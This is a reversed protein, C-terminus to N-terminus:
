KLPSIKNVLSKNVQNMWLAEANGYRKEFDQLSIKGEALDGYKAIGSDSSYKVSLYERSANIGNEYFNAPRPHNLHYNVANIEHAFKYGQAYLRYGLEINEFGWTKFGEDFGYLEILRRSISMNGSFTSVWPIGSDTSGEKSYLSLVLKTYSSERALRSKKGNVIEWILTERELISSLYIEKPVGITIDFGATYKNVHMDVFSKNPIRDADCFIVLDGEGLQVGANRAISRGSKELNISHLTWGKESFLPKRESILSDIDESSGDNVVIVSLENKTEQNLFGTLVYALSSRQNYVPIVIDVRM